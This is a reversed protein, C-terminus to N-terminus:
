PAKKRLENELRAKEEQLFAVRREWYEHELRVWLYLPLYLLNSLWRKVATEEKAM